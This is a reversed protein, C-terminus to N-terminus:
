KPVAVINFHIKVEDKLTDTERWGIRYDLRKVAAEGHAKAGKDNFDDLVFTLTVPVTIGKITLRGAAEYRNGDAQTFSKAEFRAKPFQAVDFWDEMKLTAPVQYYAAAVSAMDVDVVVSSDQLAQPHFRIQADFKSFTGTTAENNQTAEFQLVSQGPLALFDLPAPASFAPQTFTALLSLAIVYARKM